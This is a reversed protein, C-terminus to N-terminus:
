KQDPVVSQGRIQFVHYFLRCNHCVPQIGEFLLVVGHDRFVILSGHSIGVDDSIQRYVPSIKAIM